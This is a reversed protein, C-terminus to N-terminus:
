DFYKLYDFDYTMSFTGNKGIIVYDNFNLELHKMSKSLRSVCRVDDEEPKYAGDPKIRILIVSSAKNILAHEIIRLPEIDKKLDAGGYLRECCIVESSNNLCMVRLENEGLSSLNNEVYEKVRTYSNIVAGSQKEAAGYIRRPIDGFLKILVAANEGVGDIKCLESVDASFVKELDGGFHNVVRYAIEKVDRRPIAYTLILEIINHYPMGTLGNKIYSDRARQRHGARSLERSM